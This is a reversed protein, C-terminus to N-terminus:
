NIPKTFCNKNSSTLHLYNKNIWSVSIDMAARCANTQDLENLMVFDHITGKFRIQTVNVGAQMLKTAYKEGEDRLVDAEGTLLMTAPLNELDKISAKLPAATIKNRINKNPLYQDWFWKMQEKTLYYGEKFKNYSNTNFNSDTVPYYLLQKSILPAKKYKAILCLATAMNAGVSDGAIILENININLKAKKLIDKISLLVNYCEILATPYKAEPARTYEPFILISNTRSALERVLKEHTHFSGYTWGAGHIYLIVKNILKKNTPIVIYLPIKRKKETNYITRIINNPYKFVPTSQLIELKKRAENIPLEYLFPSKSTKNAINQASHELIIKDKM